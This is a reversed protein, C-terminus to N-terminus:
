IIGYLNITLNVTIKFNLFPFFSYKHYCFLSLFKQLIIQLLKKGFVKWSFVSKKSKSDDNVEDTNNEPDNHKKNFSLDTDFREDLM